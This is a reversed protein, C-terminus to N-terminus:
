QRRGRGAHRGPTRILVAVEATIEGILRGAWGLEAQLGPDVGGIACLAESWGETQLDVMQLESGASLDTAFRGTLRHNLFDAVGLFRAARGHVDPRHQRLWGISPLPLGPFLLWGSLRRITDATGDAQWGQIVGQSRNDLWTIMPYVPDGALDAPIVSGAQAALALALVRYGSAQEVVSRLVHLLAQWVAESDQEVWGPQPTLFPYSQSAVAVESGALDFLIAKTASTGVDIGLIAEQM